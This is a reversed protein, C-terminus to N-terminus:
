VVREGTVGQIQGNSDGTDLPFFALSAALTLIPQRREEVAGTLLDTPLAPGSVKKRRIGKLPGVVERIGAKIDLGPEDTVKVGLGPFSDAAQITAQQLRSHPDQIQHATPLRM